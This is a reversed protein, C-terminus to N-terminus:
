EAARARRNVEALYRSVTEFWGGSSKLRALGRNLAAITAAAEPAARWALAHVPITRTLTPSAIVGPMPRAGAMQEPLSVIDVSGAILLRLCAARSRRQVIEVAIGIDALDVATLGAPRCVRAGQWETVAPGGSGDARVLAVMRLEVLPDSYLYRECLRAAESGAPPATCDPAPWPAALAFAGTPMLVDLHAPRDDVFAPTLTVDAGSEGLARVILLPIMGGHPLDRDTLPALGSAMLLRGPRGPAAPAAAAPPAPSDPPGTRAADPSAAADAAAAPPPAPAQRGREVSAGARRARRDGLDDRLTTRRGTAALAATRTQLGTDACPVFLLQGTEIRGPRDLIDRNAEFLVRYREHGLTRLTIARLTDGRAVRYFQGCESQAWADPATGPLAAVGVVLCLARVLSSVSFGSGIRM